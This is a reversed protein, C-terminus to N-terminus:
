GTEVPSASTNPEPGRQDAEHQIYPLPKRLASGYCWTFAILIVVSTVAFSWGMIWENSVGTLVGFGIELPQSGTLSM